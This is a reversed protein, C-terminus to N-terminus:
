FAKAPPFGSDVPLLTAPNLNKVVEVQVGLNECLMIQYEIM